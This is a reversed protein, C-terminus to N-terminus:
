KGESQKAELFQDIHPKNREDEYETLAYLLQKELLDDEVLNGEDPYGKYLKGKTESDIRYDFCYVGQDTEILITGGDRYKAVRTIEQIM